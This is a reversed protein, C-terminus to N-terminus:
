RPLPDCQIAMIKTVLTDFTSAQFPPHLACMEYLLCGSGWMDSKTDYRTMIPNLHISQIFSQNVLHNNLIAPPWFGVHWKEHWVQDYRTMFPHLHISQIFSQNILHNNQIAPPWFGVHRTLISKKCTKSAFIHTPITPRSPLVIGSKYQQCHPYMMTLLVLWPYMTTLLVLWPYMMTLLVLWPYMTTLLVLWPYMMTLLVLWPYMMTLLVLWPYMM